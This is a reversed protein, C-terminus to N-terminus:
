ATSVIRTGAIRDHLFQADRDGLAWVITIGLLLYGPVAMAVRLWARSLPVPGGQVTEIRMRWTKMPLTQGGRHWQWAFYASCCPFAIAQTLARAYAPETLQALGAALGGALLIIALLLLMEYVLSLLRKGLGPTAARGTM